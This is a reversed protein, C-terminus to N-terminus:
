HCRLLAWILEAQYFAFPLSVWIAEDSDGKPGLMEITKAAFVPASLMRMIERTSEIIIRRDFPHTMFKPDILPAAKPDASRLTVTGRSQPNMILAIAGFYYVDPSPDYGIFSPPTHKL